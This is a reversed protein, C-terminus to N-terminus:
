LKWSKLDHIHFLYSKRFSNSRLPRTASIVPAPTPKPSAIESPKASNPQSIAAQSRSMSFGCRVASFTRLVPLRAMAKVPWHRRERRINDGHHICRDAFKAADVNQHITGANRLMIGRFQSREFGPISNEVDVQAARKKHQWAAARTMSFFPLPTIM